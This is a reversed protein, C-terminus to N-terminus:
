KTEKSKSRIRIRALQLKHRTLYATCSAKEINFKAQTLRKARIGNSTQSEIREAFNVKYKLWLKKDPVADCSVCYEHFRDLAQFLNEVEGVGQNWYNFRIRLESHCADYYQKQLKTIESDDALLNMVHPEGITLYPDPQQAVAGGSVLAWFILITPNFYRLVLIEKKDIVMAWCLGILDDRISKDVFNQGLM